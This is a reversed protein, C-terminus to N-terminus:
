SNKESIRKGGQTVIENVLTDSASAHMVAPVDCFFHNIEKPGCFSLSFTFGTQITCNICGSLSSGVVMFVCLRKNMIIQYLLPNCTATFHNYAMVALFFTEMTGFLSFFMQSACGSYSIIRRSLSFILAAKPTIVSSYCIDLISLNELFFYMPTHLKSDMRIILIMCAYGVVTVIYMTSFLVLLLLQLGPHSKFGILILETVKTHNEMNGKLHHEFLFNLHLPCDWKPINAVKGPSAILLILYVILYIFGLFYSFYLPLHFVISFPNM